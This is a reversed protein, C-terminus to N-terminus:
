LELSFVCDDELEGQNKMSAHTSLSGDSISKSWPPRQTMTSWPSDVSSNEEEHDELHTIEWGDDDDEADLRQLEEDGAQKTKVIGQLSKKSLPHVVGGNTQYDRHIQSQMGVVLRAYMRVDDYEARRVEDALQLESPTRQIHTKPLPIISSAPLSAPGSSPASPVQRRKRMTSKNIMAPAEVPSIKKAGLQRLPNLSQYSSVM